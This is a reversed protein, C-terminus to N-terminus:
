YDYFRTVDPLGELSKKLGRNSEVLDNTGGGQVILELVYEWRDYIWSIKDRNV